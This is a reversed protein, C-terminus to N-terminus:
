WLQEQQQQDTALPWIALPVQFLKLKEIIKDNLRNTVRDMNTEIIQDIQWWDQEIIYAIMRAKHARKHWQQSDQLM